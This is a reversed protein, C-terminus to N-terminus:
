ILSSSYSKKIKEVLIDTLYKQLTKFALSKYFEEKTDPNFIIPNKIYNGVDVIYKYADYIDWYNDIILKNQNITNSSIYDNMSRWLFIDINDLKIKKLKYNDITNDIFEDINM